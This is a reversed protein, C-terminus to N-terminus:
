GPSFLCACDALAPCGQLRPLRKSFSLQSNQLRRILATPGERWLAPDGHCGCRDYFGSGGTVPWACLAALCIPFPKWMFLSLSLSLSSYPSYLPPSTNQRLKGGKSLESFSKAPRALYLGWNVHSESCIYM